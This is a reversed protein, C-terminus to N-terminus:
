SACAHQAINSVLELYPSKVVMQRRVQLHRPPTYKHRYSALLKGMVEATGKIYTSVAGTLSSGCVSPVNQLSLCKLKELAILPVLAKRATGVNHFPFISSYKKTSHQFIGHFFSLSVLEVVQKEQCTRDGGGAM